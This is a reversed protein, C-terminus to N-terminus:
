IIITLPFRLSMHCEKSIPKGIQFFFIERLLFVYSANMTSIWDGLDSISKGTNPVEAPFETPIIAHVLIRVNDTGLFPLFMYLYFEILESSSSNYLSCVIKNIICFDYKNKASSKTILSLPLAKRCDWVTQPSNLPSSDNVWNTYLILPEPYKTLIFLFSHLVNLMNRIINFHLGNILIIVINKRKLELYVCCIYFITRSEAM